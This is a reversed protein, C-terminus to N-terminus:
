ECTVVVFYCVEVVFRLGYLGYKTHAIAYAVSIEAHKNRRRLRLWVTPVIVLVAVVVLLSAFVAALSEGVYNHALLPM